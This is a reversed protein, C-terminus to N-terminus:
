ADKKKMIILFTDYPYQFIGKEKDLWVKTTDNQVAKHVQADLRETEPGSLQTIYSKSHVRDLVGQVTTPIFHNFKLEEQPEFHAKYAATDFTARWLNLRFQPTNLEFPEYAERVDAVWQAADRDELNWIFFAVGNPKLIRAIEKMGADYDPCWHWAQAVIVCDASQPPLGTSDFGGEKVSVRSDSTLSSFKERMGSSPEVAQLTKINQAFDPHQLMARTFIGTGSGLEVVEFPPITKLAKYIGSIAEAPYSPRARGKHLLRAAAITVLLCSM